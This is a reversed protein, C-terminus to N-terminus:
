IEYGVYQLWAMAQHRVPMQTLSGQPKYFITDDEILATIDELPDESM